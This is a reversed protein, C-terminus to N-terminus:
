PSPRDDPYYSLMQAVLVSTEKSVCIKLPSATPNTKFKKSKIKSLLDSEDEGEFPYCGYLMQYLIVGLSFVDSAFTPREERLQEPSKAQIPIENPYAVNCLKILSYTCFTINEACVRECVILKDHLESVAMLAYKLIVLADSEM